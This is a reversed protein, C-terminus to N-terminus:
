AHSAGLLRLTKLPPDIIALRSRHEARVDPFLRVYGDLDGIPVRWILHEDGRRLEVPLIRNMPASGANQDYHYTDFCRGDRLSLPLRQPNHTLVFPPAWRLDLEPLLRVHLWRDRRKAAVVMVEYRVRVLGPYDIRTAQGLTRHGGAYIAPVLEVSCGFPPLPAPLHLGGDRVYKSRDITDFLNGEVFVGVEDAEEPWVMTIIQEHCREVVQANRVPSPPKIATVTRGVRVNEGLTTVPTLYVFKWGPPWAVDSMRSIQGSVVPNPVRSTATLRADDPIEDSALNAAALLSRGLDPPPMVMTRHVHVEGSPPATWSLDLWWRDGTQRQQVTLDTVPLLEGAPVFVEAQVPESLMVGNDVEVESRVRYLYTVGRAAETDTFGRLNDHEPLIRYREDGLDFAGRLPIRYVRVRVTKPLASWRGVVVGHDDSLHFDEVAAIIQGRAVLEPPNQRAKDLTSGTHRWVVVFRAATHLPETDVATTSTTVAITRAQGPREPMFGDHAAVRYIVVHDPGADTALWDFRFEKDAATITVKGVPTPSPVVQNNSFDDDGLEAPGAAAAPPPEEIVSLRDDPGPQETQEAQATADITAPDESLDPHEGRMRNVLVAIFPAAWHISKPLVQRIGIETTKGSRLIQQLHTERLQGAELKGQSVQEDRWARLEDLIRDELTM